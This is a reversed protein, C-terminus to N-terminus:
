MSDVGADIGGAGTTFTLTIAQPLVGGHIDAVGTDLTLEYSAEAALGGSVQLTLLAQDSQSALVTVDATRDVGDETLTIAASSATADIAANFQMLINFNGAGDNTLDVMAQADGPDSDILALAQVGFSIESTDGPNCTANIDGNPPACVGNGDKDTVASNFLIGCTSGTRIGNQPVLILAPGLSNIGLPGATIQQNGAPNYFSQVPELPINVGDCEIRIGLEGPAYERMQRADAAGDENEDLIGVGVCVATCEGLNPPSCKAIDDPTTGEPVTSFTGDACAIEELSNGVLLEDMVVRIRQNGRAVAQTVMRDDTETSIDPHDGFALGTRTTTGGSSTMVRESMFVQRVMPPGEPNLDTQTETDSCAALALAAGLGM